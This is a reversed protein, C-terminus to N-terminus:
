LSGSFRLACAKSTGVSQYIEKILCAIADQTSKGERFGFQKDSLINHKNLFNNIREKLIKEFIKCLNSVLSVPRYNSVDSKEGNKHLPTVVAIKFM